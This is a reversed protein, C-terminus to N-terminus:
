NSLCTPDSICDFTKYKKLSFAKNVYKCLALYRVVEMGYNM